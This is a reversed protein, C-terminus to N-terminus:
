NFFLWQCILSTFSFVPSPSVRCWQANRLPSPLFAADDFHLWFCCRFIAAWLNLHKRVFHRLMENDRGSKQELPRRIKSRAMERAGRAVRSVRTTPQCASGGLLRWVSKVGSQSIGPQLSFGAANSLLVDADVRKAKQPSQFCSDLFESSRLSRWNMLRLHLNM